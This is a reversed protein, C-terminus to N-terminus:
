RHEGRDEPPFCPTVQWHDSYRWLAWLMVAVSFFSLAAAVYGAALLFSGFLWALTIAIRVGGLHDRRRPSNAARGRLAQALRPDEKILQAELEQLTRQERDDLM